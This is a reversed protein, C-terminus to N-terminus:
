PTTHKKRWYLIVNIAPENLITPNIHPRIQPTPTANKRYAMLRGRGERGEEGEKSRM